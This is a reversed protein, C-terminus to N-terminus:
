VVNITIAGKHKTTKDKAASLYPNNFPKATAATEPKPRPNSM